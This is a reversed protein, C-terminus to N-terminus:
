ERNHHSGAGQAADQLMHDLAMYYQPDIPTVHNGIMSGMPEIFVVKSLNFPPYDFMISESEGSDDDTILEPETCGSFMYILLIVVIINLLFKM